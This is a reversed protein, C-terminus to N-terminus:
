VKTVKPIIQNITRRSLIKLFLVMENNFYRGTELGTKNFGISEAAQSYSNNTPVTNMFPQFILYFEVLCSYYFLVPILKFISSFKAELRPRKRLM